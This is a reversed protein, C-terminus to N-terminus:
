RLPPTSGAGAMQHSGDGNPYGNHNMPRMTNMNHSPAAHSSVQLQGQFSWCDRAFHGEKGCTFCVRNSYPQVPRPPGWDNDQSHGQGRGRPPRNDKQPSPQSKAALKKIELEIAMISSELVSVRAITGDQSDVVPAAEPDKVKPKEQSAPAPPEDPAKVDERGRKLIRPRGVARILPLEHEYDDSLDDESSYAPVMSTRGHRRARREDGRTGGNKSEVLVVVEYVARDIDEPNKVYEVTQSIKEEALGELFRRLLDEQRTQKDRRPYAKDYLRKLESSFAEASEGMKQKRNNFKTRFTAETEIKRFRYELERALEKFHERTSRPLQGYVFDGAPGQLRPLLEDLKQAKSWGKRGAVDTFRNFWVQWTENEGTFPPLKPSHHDRTHRIIPTDEDESSSLGHSDDGGDQEQPLSAGKTTSKKPRDESTVSGAQSFVLNAKPQMSDRLRTFERRMETVLPDVPIDRPNNAPTDGTGSVTSAIGGTPRSAVVEVNQGDGMLMTSARNPCPQVIEPYSSRIESRLEVRLSESRKQMEMDMLEFIKERERKMVLQSEHGEKMRSAHQVQLDAFRQEHIDELDKVRQQQWGDHDKEMARLLLERETKRLRDQREENSHLRQQMMLVMRDEQAHLKGHIDKSLSAIDGQFSVYLDNQDGHPLPPPISPRSNTARQFVQDLQLSPRQTSPIWVSTTESSPPLTYGPRKGQEQSNSAQEAENIMINPVSDRTPTVATAQLEGLEGLMGGTSTTKLWPENATLDGESDDESLQQVAPVDSLRLRDGSVKQIEREDGSADGPREDVDDAERGCSRTVPREM